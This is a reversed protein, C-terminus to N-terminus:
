APEGLAERLHQRARFLRTGVGASTLGLRRGIEQQSYGHMVQLILPQSYKNPL